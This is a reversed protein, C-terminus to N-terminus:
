FGNDGSPLPEALETPVFRNADVVCAVQENPSKKLFHCIVARRFFGVLLVPKNWCTRIQYFVEEFCKTWNEIEKFVPEVYIHDNLDNLNTEAHTSKTFGRFLFFSHLHLFSFCFTSCFSESSERETPMPTQRDFWILKKEESYDVQEAATM